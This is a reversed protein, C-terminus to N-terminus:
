SGMHFEALAIDGEIRVIAFGELYIHDTDGTAKIMDNAALSIQLWTPSILVPTTYAKARTFFNSESILRIKGSHPASDLNDLPLGENDSEYASFKVCCKGDVAAAVRAQIKEYQEAWRIDTPKSADAGGQRLLERWKLYAVSIGVSVGTLVGLGVLILRKSRQM